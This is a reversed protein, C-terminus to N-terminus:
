DMFSYHNETNHEIEKRKVNKFLFSFHDRKNIESRGWRM